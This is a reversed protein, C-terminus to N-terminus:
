QKVIDRHTPASNMMDTHCSSCNNVSNPSSGCNRYKNEVRHVFLFSLEHRPPSHVVYTTLARSPSKDLVDSLTFVEWTNLHFTFRHCFFFDLATVMRVVTEVITREIRGWTNQREHGCALCRISKALFQMRNRASRQGCSGRTRQSQGAQASRQLCRTDM